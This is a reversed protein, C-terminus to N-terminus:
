ASEQKDLLWRHFGKGFTGDPKFFDMLSNNVLRIVGQRKVERVLNKYATEFRKQEWFSTSAKWRFGEPMVGANSSKAELNEGGYLNLRAQFLGDKDPGTATDMQLEFFYFWGDPDEWCIFPEDAEIEKGFSFAFAENKGEKVIRVFKSPVKEPEDPIDRLKGAGLKGLKFGEAMELFKDARTM